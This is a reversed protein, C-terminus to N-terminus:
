FVNVIQANEVKDEMKLICIQSQYFLFEHFINILLWIIIAILM